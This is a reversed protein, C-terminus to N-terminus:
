GKAIQSLTSDLEALAQIISEVVSRDFEARDNEEHTGKNLYRWERSDGSVGLLTELPTAVLGKNDHSFDAKTIKSRLQETLNRLDIPATASRLKISLNGDGYKTVYGWLKDKTM